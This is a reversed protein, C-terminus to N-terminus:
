IREWAIIIVEKKSPKVHLLISWDSFNELPFIPVYLRYEEKPVAIRWMTMFLVLQQCGSWTVLNGLRLETLFM